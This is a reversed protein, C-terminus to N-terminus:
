TVTFSMMTTEANQIHQEIAAVLHNLEEETTLGASLMFPRTAAAAVLPMRMYPHSAQLAVLEARLQVNELGVQKALHYTRRGINIDGRLGLTAELIPADEAWEECHPWFNWTSHDPEQIVVISGPMTLRKMERLLKLPDAVHPLVFREHVLDFTDPDLGSKHVDAEQLEVNRLHEVDVYQRAADLLSADMDLGLVRGSPGARRSLPGLIGMAGCGMDLCSWGAQVGITDLLRETAPQWVRAQLQLRAMEEDGFLMYKDGPM